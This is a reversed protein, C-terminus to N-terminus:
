EKGELDPINCIRHRTARQLTQEGRRKERRPEVTNAPGALPKLWISWGRVWCQGVDTLSSSSLRKAAACRNARRRDGARGAGLLSCSRGALPAGGVKVEGGEVM